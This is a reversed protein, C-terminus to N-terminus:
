SRVHMITAGHACAVFFCTQTSTSTSTSPLLAVSGTGQRASAGMCANHPPNTAPNWKQCDELDTAVCANIDLGGGGAKAGVAENKEVSRGPCGGVSEHIPQKRGHQALRVTTNQWRGSPKMIIIHKKTKQVCRTWM